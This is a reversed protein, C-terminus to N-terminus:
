NVAQRVRLDAIAGAGRHTGLALFFQCGTENVSLRRSREPDAELTAIRTAPVHSSLSLDAEGADIAQQISAIGVKLKVQIRDVWAKRLPDTAPDWNPNRELVVSRGPVYSDVTYPGSGAM